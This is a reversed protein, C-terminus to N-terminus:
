AGDNPLLDQEPPTPLEDLPVIDPPLLEKMAIRKGRSSNLTEEIQERTAISLGTLLDILPAFNADPHILQADDPDIPLYIEQTEPHVRPSTYYKTTDPLPNTVLWMAESLNWGYQIDTTGLPIYIM